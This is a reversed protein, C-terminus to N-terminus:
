PSPSPKRNQLTFAKASNQHAYYFLVETKLRSDQKKLPSSQGMNNKGVILPPHLSLALFPAKKPPTTRPFFPLRIKWYPKEM